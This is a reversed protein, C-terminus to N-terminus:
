AAKPADPAADAERRADALADRHKAKRKKKAASVRVRECAKCYRNRGDAATVICGFEGVPKHVKCPGACLRLEEVGAAAAIADEPARRVASGRRMGDMLLASYVPSEGPEDDTV